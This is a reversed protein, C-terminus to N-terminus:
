KRREECAPCFNYWESSLKESRVIAWDEAKMACVAIQYDYEPELEKGCGDCIPTYTYRNKRIM